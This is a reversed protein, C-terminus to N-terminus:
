KYHKKNLSNEKQDLVLQVSTHLAESLNALLGPDDVVLGRRFLRDKARLDILVM